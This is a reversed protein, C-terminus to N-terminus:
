MMLLDTMIFQHEVQQLSLGGDISDQGDNKRGAVGM